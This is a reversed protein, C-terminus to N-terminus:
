DVYLVKFQLPKHLCGYTILVCEPLRSCNTKGFSVDLINEGKWATINESHNSYRVIMAIDYYNDNTIALHVVCKDPSQLLATHPTFSVFLIPPRWIKIDTHIKDYLPTQINKAHKYTEVYKLFYNNDLVDLAHKYFSKCIARSLFVENYALYKAITIAILPDIFM